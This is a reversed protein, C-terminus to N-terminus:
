IQKVAEEQSKGSETAIADRAQDTIGTGASCSGYVVM